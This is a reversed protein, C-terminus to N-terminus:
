IRLLSLVINRRQAVERSDFNAQVSLNTEIGGIGLKKARHEYEAPIGKKPGSWKIGFTLYQRLNTELNVMLVESIFDLQVRFHRLM